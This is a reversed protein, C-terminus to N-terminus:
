FDFQSQLVNTTGVFTIRFEITADADTNIQLETNGGSEVLRARNADLPGSNDWQITTGGSLQFDVRDSGTMDSIKDGGDNLSLYIFTDAGAGGEITDVGENGFIMDNGDDGFLKDAGDGGRLTDNGAEGYLKDNGSEGNISDNGNGGYGADDFGGLRLIDNGGRGQFTNANYQDDVFGVPGKVTDEITDNGESGTVNNFGSIKDGQADGGKGTTTDGFTLKVQVATTAGAYSLWDDGDAGGGLVDAGAGGMITDRGLGGYITDAGADGYITDNGGQGGLLDGGAGGYIRDNGEDGDITDVNGPGDQTPDGYIINALTNGIIEDKGASGKANEIVGNVVLRNGTTFPAPNFDLYFGSAQVPMGGAGASYGLNIQSYSSHSSSMILWDNGSGDDSIVVTTQGAPARSEILYSNDAM